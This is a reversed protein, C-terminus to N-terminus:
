QQCKRRKLKRSIYSDFSDVASYSNLSGTAPNKLVVRLKENKISMKRKPIFFPEKCCICEMDNKSNSESLSSASISSISVPNRFKSFINQKEQDRSLSMDSTISYASMDSNRSGMSIDSIINDPIYKRTISINPKNKNDPISQISQIVISDKSTELFPITSMSSSSEIDSNRKKMYDSVPTTLISGHFSLDEKSSKRTDNETKIKSEYNKSNKDQSLERYIDNLSPRPALILVSNSSISSKSKSNSNSTPFNKKIDSITPRPALLLISNSSITSSDSFSKKNRDSSNQKSKSSANDNIIIIEKKNNQIKPNFKSIQTSKNSKKSSPKTIEEYYSTGTDDDDIYYGEYFSKVSPNTIEEYYSTESLPIEEYLSSKTSKSQAPIVEYYSTVSNPPITVDEYSDPITIEEYSNSISDPITIEEYSDPITIEEYLSQNDRGKKSKRTRSSTSKTGSTIKPTINKNSIFCQKEGEKLKVVIM